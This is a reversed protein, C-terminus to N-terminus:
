RRNHGHRFLPQVTANAAATLQVTLSTPSNVTVAGITIGPLPSVTTTGQVFNTNAGTITFPRGLHRVPLVSPSIQTLVPTNAPLLLNFAARMIFIAMQGRTVPDNPCYTNTGCGATVGDRKMRQIWAFGLDGPAVDTFSSTTSYTFSPPSGALNVGLRARIIFIAMQARTVNDNPCYTNTGCGATIGLEKMKQIWKFGFDTTQVDTFYPTPSFTFNDGGEIARVMFIAMQARTVNDNPCYDNSGCGATIGYQALLDAASADFDTPQIDLFLVTFHQTIPPAAAFNANGPQSATISCGGSTVITVTSGSVTCVSLTKSVYQVTLASSATATLNFPATSLPVNGIAGFNITQSSPAVFFDQVVNAAPTYTTNGPQSAAIFCTGPGAATLVSGAVTCISTTNSTFTIPLGSSATAILTYTGPTVNGPSAFTITQALGQTVAISRGLLTINATRPLGTTNAAFSFNVVGNVVSSFTLWTQDSTPAFVGTLDTNAPFVPPPSDSGATSLATVSAPSVFAAPIKAVIGASYDNFYVNGSGDVAIAYHSDPTAILTPVQGSVADREAILGNGDAFSISMGQGTVRHCLWLSLDDGHNGTVCSARQRRGM